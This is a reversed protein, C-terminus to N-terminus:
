RMHKPLTGSEKITNLLNMLNKRPEVGREIADEIQKVIQEKNKYGFLIRILVYLKIEENKGYYYKSYFDVGEEIEYLSIYLRM